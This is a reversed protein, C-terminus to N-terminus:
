PLNLDELPSINGENAIKYVKGLNLTEQDDCVAVSLDPGKYEGAYVTLTSAMVVASVTFLAAIKRISNKKM